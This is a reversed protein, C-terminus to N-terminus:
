RVDSGSVMRSLADAIARDRGQAAHQYQLAASPTSHGLRAMLEALTAGTAAALTAGTHRLDHFRLDPRGAAVRAQSFQWFMASEALSGGSAGPFLLGDRGPQAHDALHLRLMPALHPPIAVDRIGATSKPTGIITHGDVRVVGRRVHVVLNTMDVDKRRLEALEGFRMGLWAALLVLARMREPMAAAVAELEPLTAPRITRARKAKGAGRVRCPNAPILDDAVATNLVTRLLSYAHSRMTPTSRDLAGHWDRVVAPTIAALPVDAFTPLILRDLIRRYHARTRPKLERDELWGDAYRGLTMHGPKAPEPPLWAGRVIESRRISLWGEADGKTDFTTPAAHRLGDPGVYSAQYRGSPLRRLSGFSRRHGTRPVRAEM